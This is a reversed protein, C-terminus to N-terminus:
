KGAEVKAAAKMKENATIVFEVRRNSASGETTENTAIPDLEGKGIATLRSSSIGNMSIFSTVAEARSVSLTQNYSDSGKSDTHGIVTINTEPYKLLTAKLKDLNLKATANL